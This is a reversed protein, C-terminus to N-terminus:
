VIEGRLSLTVEKLVVSKKSRRLAEETIQLTGGCCPVEM